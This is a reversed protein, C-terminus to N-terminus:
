EHYTSKHLSSMLGGRVSPNPSVSTVTPTPLNATLRATFLALVLADGITTSGSLNFDGVANVLSPKTVGADALAHVLADGITIAGSANLDGRQVVNLPIENSFLTTQSVSVSSASLSIPAGSVLEGDIGSSVSTTLTLMSTGAAVPIFQLAAVTFAGAPENGAQTHSLRVRGANSDISIVSPPSTFGAGTGGSINAASVAVINRDYTITVDYSRLATTLSNVQVAVTAPNVALTASNGAKIGLAGTTSLVSESVTATLQSAGVFQTPLPVSGASVQSNAVFNQGNITLTLPKGYSPAVSQSLGPATGSLPNIAPQTVDQATLWCCGPLLVLTLIELLTFTRLRSRM